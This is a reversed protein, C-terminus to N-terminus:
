LQRIDPFKNFWIKSVKFQTPESSYQIKITDVDTVTASNVTKSLNIYFESQYTEPYEGVTTQSSALITLITFYFGYIQM